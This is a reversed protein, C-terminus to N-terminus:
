CATFTLVRQQQWAPWVHLRLVPALDNEAPLSTLVRQPTQWAPRALLRTCRVQLFECAQRYGIARTAINTNPQMGQDLLM